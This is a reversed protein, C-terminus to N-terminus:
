RVARASKALRSNRGRDYFAGARNKSYQGGAITTRNATENVSLGYRGNGTSTCDLIQVDDSEIQIGDGGCNTSTCNSLVARDADLGSGHADLLIGTDTCGSVRVGNARFASGHVSLGRFGGSVTGNSVTVSRAVVDIGIQARGREM